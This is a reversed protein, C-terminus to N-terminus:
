LVIAEDKWFGRGWALGGGLGKCSVELGGMRFELVYISLGWDVKWEDM